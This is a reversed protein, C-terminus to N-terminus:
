QFQAIIHMNVFVTLDVNARFSTPIYTSDVDNFVSFFWQKVASFGNSDMFLASALM